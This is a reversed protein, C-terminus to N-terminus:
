DRRELTSFRWFDSLYSDDRMDARAKAKTAASLKRFQTGKLPDLECITIRDLENKRLMDLVQPSHTTMIVQHKQSVERILSLLKQLQDPHIGLEPEELFIINDWHGSNVEVGESTVDVHFFSAVVMESIIYFLRKTGDSLATFPLWQNNVMFELVLGKLLIEEQVQNVYVQWSEFRRVSQVPSYISLYPILQALQADVVQEVMKKIAEVTVESAPTRMEGRPLLEDLGTEIIQRLSEVFRSTCLITANSGADKLKLSGRKVFMMEVNDSVIPLQHM